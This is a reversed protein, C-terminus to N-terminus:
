EFVGGARQAGAREPYEHRYGQRQDQRPYQGAHDQGERAGEALEARRNGKHRVDGALRLGQRGRDIRQRLNGAAFDARQPQRQDRDRDRRRRQKERLPDDLAGGAPREAVSMISTAARWRRPAKTSSAANAASPPSVASNPREPDPLVDSTLMM